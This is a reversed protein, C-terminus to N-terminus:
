YTSPYRDLAVDKLTRAFIRVKDKLLHVKDYLCNINITPHKAFHVNPLEECEKELRSNIKNITDCHMNKMPLLASMVVRSEPFTNSAKEIVGTLSESLRDQEQRLQSSGTHIIIHTPTGLHEESLLEIAKQTNPCDFKAVKDRPFLKKERIFKGNSDILIVIDNQAREEPQSPDHNQGVHSRSLMERLVQIERDKERLQEQLAEVTQEEQRTRKDQSSDEEDTQDANGNFPPAATDEGSAM